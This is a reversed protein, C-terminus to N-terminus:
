LYGDEMMQYVDSNAAVIDERSRQSIRDAAEQAGRIAAKEDVTLLKRDEMIVQGVIVVTEVESGRAAYVLNPVINGIPDTYVPCLSPDQLNLVIM